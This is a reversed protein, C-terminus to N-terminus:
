RQTPSWPAPINRTLTLNSPYIVALVKEQVVANYIIKLSTFGAERSSALYAARLVRTKQESTAARFVETAKSVAQGKIANRDERPISRPLYRDVYNQVTARTSADLFRSPTNRFLSGSEGTESSTTGSTRPTGSVPATIRSNNANVNRTVADSTEGIANRNLGGAAGLSQIPKGSMYWVFCVEAFEREQESMGFTRRITEIAKQITIVRKMFTSASEGPRIVVSDVAKAVANQILRTNTGRYKLYGLAKITFERSAAPSVTSINVNNSTDTPNSIKNEEKVGSQGSSSSATSSSIKEKSPDVPLRFSVRVPEPSGEKFDVGSILYFGEFDPIGSLFITMGPRLNVGNFRDVLLTGEAAKIDDDSRRVQPMELLIYKDNFERFFDDTAYPYFFPIFKFDGYSCKPDGWKGLLFAESCFFLTGESEFCIFKQEDALSRLVTWVSDDANRSKGKVISQKKTTREGVFNLAFRKAMAAAFDFATMGRYAEPKKDRKM